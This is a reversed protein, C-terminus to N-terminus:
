AGILPISCAYLEISRKLNFSYAGKINEGGAYEMTPPRASTFYLSTIYNIFSIGNTNSYKSNIMSKFKCLIIHM